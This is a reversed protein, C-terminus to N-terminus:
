ARVTSIAIRQLGHRLGVTGENDGAYTTTAVPKQDICGAVRFGFYFYPRVLSGAFRAHDKPWSSSKGPRDDVLVALRDIHKPDGQNRDGIPEAAATRRQVHRIWLTGEDKFVDRGALIAYLDRGGM